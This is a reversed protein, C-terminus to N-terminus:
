IILQKTWLRKLFNGRIIDLDQAVNLGHKVKKVGFYFGLNVSQNMRMYILLEVFFVIRQNYDCKVCMRQGCCLWYQAGECDFNTPEM